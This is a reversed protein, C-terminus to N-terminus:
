LSQPSVVRFAMNALLAVAEHRWTNGLDALSSTPMQSTGSSEGALPDSWVHMWAHMWATMGRRILVSLGWQDAVIFSGTEVAVQTRLQEYRLTWCDRQRAPSLQEKM